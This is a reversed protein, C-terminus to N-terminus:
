LQIGIDLNLESLKFKYVRLGQFDEEGTFKAELPCGASPMWLSYNKKGVGNPSALNVPEAGHRRLVLCISQYVQDVGLVENLGFQPLEMGDVTPTYTTITQNIILM